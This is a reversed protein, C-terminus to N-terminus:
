AKQHEAVLPATAMYNQLLRSGLTRVEPNDTSQVLMDAAWFIFLSTSLFVTPDECRVISEGLDRLLQRVSRTADAPSITEGEAPQCVVDIDALRYAIEQLQVPTLLDSEQPQAIVSSWREQLQASLDEPKKERIRNRAWKRIEEHADPYLILDLPGHKDYAMMRGVHAVFEEKPMSQDLPVVQAEKKKFEVTPAATCTEKWAAVDPGSLERSTPAIIETHSEVDEVQTIMSGIDGMGQSLAHLFQDETGKGHTSFLLQALSDTKVAGPIHEPDVLQGPNDDARHFALIMCSRAFGSEIRHRHHVLSGAAFLTSLPKTDHTLEVVARKGLTTEQFALVREISDPTIFISANESSWPSGGETVMCQRAGKHTGPLFVFNQGKPGSPKGKEWTLILKYEDNFPTNDIHLM